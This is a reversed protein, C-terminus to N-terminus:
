CLSCGGSTQDTGGTVGQIYITNQCGIMLVHSTSLYNKCLIVLKRWFRVNFSFLLLGVTLLSRQALDYNCTRSRFHVWFYDIIYIYIYIYILSKYFSGLTFHLVSWWMVFCCKMFMHSNFMRLLLCTWQEAKCSWAYHLSYWHGHPLLNSRFSNSLCYGLSWWHPQNNQFCNKWWLDGFLYNVITLKLAIQHGLGIVLLAILIIFLDYM